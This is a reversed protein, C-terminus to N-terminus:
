QRCLTLMEEYQPIRDMFEYSLDEKGAKLRCFYTTKGNTLFIFPVKLVINYRMAQELVERTIEVDPRKCEVIGMPVAGRGYIVVDARWTKGAGYNMAVESMMQHVPVGADNRLLGIFWQRVREEPTLPVDKRRLPDYVTEMQQIM